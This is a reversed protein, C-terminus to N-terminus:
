RCAPCQRRDSQCPRCWTCNVISDNLAPPAARAHLAKPAAAKEAAAMAHMSATFRLGASGRVLAKAIWGTGSAAVDVATVAAGIVADGAGALEAAAALAAEASGARGTLRQVATGQVALCTQWVWVLM